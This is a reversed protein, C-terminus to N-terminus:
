GVAGGPPWDDGAAAVDAPGAAVLPAAEDAPAAVGVAGPVEWSGAVALGAAVGVDRAVAGAVTAVDCGGAGTVLVAATAGLLAPAEAGTVVSGAGTRGAGTQDAGGPVCVLRGAASMRPGTVPIM